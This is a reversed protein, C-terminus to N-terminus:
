QEEKPAMFYVTNLKVKRAANIIDERTISAYAAKEDDPSTFRGTCLRAIYFHMIRIMDDSVSTCANALLKKTNEIEEDTIEGNQISELQKLIESQAKQKNESEIGSNIFIAGKFKDYSSSCYYCLSMKERVNLFLKSFPTGGFLACMFNMAVEGEDGLVTDTTLGLSLKAQAISYYETKEKIGGFSSVKRSGTEFVKQRQISSTFASSFIELAAASDGCGSFIIEIKARSLLENYADFVERCDLAQASKLSGYKGIAASHTEFMTQQCRQSALAVKDNLEAKISNILSKKETEFTKKSFSGDEIVPDLILSCLIKSLELTIPENSLTFKDDIGSIFLSLLQDDGAKTVSCSCDAGYFSNLLRNFQASDPCERYGRTLLAPLIAYKAATEESLPAVFTVSICNGKFKPDRIETFHINDAIQSRNVKTSM